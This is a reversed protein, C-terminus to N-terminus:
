VPSSSPQKKGGAGGLVGVRFVLNGSSKFEKPSFRVAVNAAIDASSAPDDLQKANDRAKDRIVNAAKRMAFRGGKKRLDFSMTEMRAMLPELGEVNVSVPDAMPFWKSM